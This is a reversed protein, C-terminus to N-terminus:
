IFIAFYNRNFFVQCVTGAVWTTMNNKPVALTVGEGNRCRGRHLQQDIHKLPIQDPPQLSFAEYAKKPQRGLM